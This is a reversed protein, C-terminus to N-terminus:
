FLNKVKQIIGENVASSVREILEFVKPKKDYSRKYNEGISIMDFLSAAISLLIMVFLFITHITDLGMAGFVLAFPIQFCILVNIVFLKWFSSWLKGSSPSFKIGDRNIERRSANIGTAFDIMFVIFYSGLSVSAVVFPMWITKLPVGEFIITFIRTFLDSPIAALFLLAGNEYTFIKKAFAVINTVQNLPTM